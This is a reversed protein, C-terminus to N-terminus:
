SRPASAAPPVNLMSLIQERSETLLRDKERVTLGETPIQTGIKITVPGPKVRKAHASFVDYTGLIAVPLIPLGSRLALLFGGRQFPRMARERSRGEEPFVVVSNGKRLREVALEFSKM